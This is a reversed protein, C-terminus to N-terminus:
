SLGADEELGALWPDTTRCGGLDETGCLRWFRVAPLFRVMSKAGCLEEAKM